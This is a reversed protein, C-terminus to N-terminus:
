RGTPRGRGAQVDDVSVITDALADLYGMNLRGGPPPWTIDQESPWVQVIAPGFATRLRTTPPETKQWSLVFGVLQGVVIMASFANPEPPPDGGEPQMRIPRFDSQHHEAYPAGALWVCTHQSPRQEEYLQVYFEPPLAPRFRSGAILATKLMWTAIVTQGTAYYTRTHGRIMSLLFPKAKVELDSMWGNNCQACVSRRTLTAPAGKHSHEKTPEGTRITMQTHTGTGGSTLYPRTWKPFVHEVTLPVDRRCFICSVARIIPV